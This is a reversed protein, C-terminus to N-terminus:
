IGLGKGSQSTIPDSLPSPMDLEWFPPQLQGTVVNFQILANFKIGSGGVRVIGPRKCEVIKVNAFNVVDRGLQLKLFFLLNVDNPQKGSLPFGERGGETRGLLPRALTTSYPQQSSGRCSPKSTSLLYARAYLGNCWMPCSPNRM